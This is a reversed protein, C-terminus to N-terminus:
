RGPPTVLRLLMGRLVAREDADLGALVRDDLREAAGRADALLERGRATVGVRSARGRGLSATVVLGDDELRRVTTHMSQATVGARRALDSISLDPDRGLHGLVGLYRMSLGLAGLEAEFARQAERGLAILLVGSATMLGGGPPPGGGPTRPTAPSVAGM